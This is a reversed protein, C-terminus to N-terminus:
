LYIKSLTHTCYLMCKSYIGPKMSESSARMLNTCYIALLISFPDAM